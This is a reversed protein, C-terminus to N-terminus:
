EEGKSKANYASVFQEAEGLSTFTRLPEEEKLVIYSIEVWTSVYNENGTDYRNETTVETKIRLSM